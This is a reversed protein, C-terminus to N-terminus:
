GELRRIVENIFGSAKEICLGLRKATRESMFLESVGTEVLASLKSGVVKVDVFMLGKKKGGKMFDVLSLISGLKASEGSDREQVVAVKVRRPCVRAVHGKEGFTYCVPSM